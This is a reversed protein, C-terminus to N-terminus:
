RGKTSFKKDVPKSLAEEITYNRSRLRFRLTSESIGIIKAWSGVSHTEGNFTIKHTLRTNKSQESMPIWTCNSPEYNGNFDVREISLGKQWGSNIAWDYFVAFDDKWESCVSIGRGGYGPYSANNENYCRQKMQLWIAYLPHNRLGHKTQFGRKGIECYGSM